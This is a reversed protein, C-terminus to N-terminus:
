METPPKVAPATRPLRKMYKELFLSLQEATIRMNGARYADGTLTLFHRTVGPLYIEKRNKRNNIYYEERDFVFGRPLLFYLHLGTHSPSYEAYADGVIGLVDQAEDSIM